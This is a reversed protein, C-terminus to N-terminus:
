LGCSPHLPLGQWSLRTVSGWYRHEPGLKPVMELFFRDAYWVGKPTESKRWTLDCLKVAETSQPHGGAIDSRCM